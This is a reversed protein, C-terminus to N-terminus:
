LFLIDEMSPVKWEDVKQNYKPTSREETEVRDGIPKM